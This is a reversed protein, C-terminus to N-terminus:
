GRRGLLGLLADEEPRAAVRLSRWALPAIAAAAAEAVRRSIALVEIGPAAAALGAARVLNIACLASRPSHFLVAGVAGSRLAGIANEPLAAAPEARYAIRRIVRFGRRRLDAALDLSYGEGVALLLPGARPDLAAAVLEALTDATGAAARCDAWGRARAEAATAEGVAIVKLGPVPRPLARA